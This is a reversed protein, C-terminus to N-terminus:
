LRASIGVFMYRGLADYMGGYFDGNAVQGGTSATLPPDKDFANNVGARLTLHRTIDKSIAFDFYSRSGLKLDYPQYAGTLFTASSSKDNKTSGIYRWTGSLMLGGQSTWDVLMRHRWHPIPLGCTVGFYGDCRYAPTGPLIQVEYKTTRTGSFNIGLRGLERGGFLDGLKQSATLSVDVGSTKLYGANINTTVVFGNTVLSGTTPNREILNCFEGTAICQNLEITAPVTSILKKVDINFYDATLTVGRLFPPVIQTGFSITNSTEPKLNPNGGILAGSKQGAAPAINGYQAATVGSAACQAFSAAPKTGECPDTLNATTGQQPGFLEVLNPARVARQFSGRFRIASIPAWEGGFKYAVTDGAESYHSYRIGANTTLSHIFPKDDVLPATLEGFVEKVNYSGSIPFEGGSNGAVDKSSYHSDPTLRISDDRYEAGVAVGIRHNAFPSGFPLQGTISGSAVKEETYGTRYFVGEVSNLAAPTIGGLQFINIPVCGANGSKCVVQGSSNTVAQLSDAFSALSIDGTLRSNYDTRGYQGYVDYHWDSGIDGKAGLVGQYSTHTTYDHRSGGQVNRLSVAVTANQAPTLGASTCFLNAEQGSLYPNNCNIKEAVTFVATPSIRIDSEDRMFMFQGYLQLAPSVEYHAFVDANWRKDPSQLDYTNGNNFGDSTRYTRLTNGTTSDITYSGRSAGTTPNLPQFQAPYTASSLSCSYGTAGASLGCTSFDRDATGVGDIHRYGVFATINGRGDAFNKGATISIDQQGGDLENGTPFPQNAAAAVSRIANGNTHSFLGGTSDVQVGDFNKKLIFNVVGALADSGYVASAGGTVVDIREVLAAPVNNIDPAQAAVRDPDGQMLRRGDVLVLTRQNGLNRLNITATGSAGVTGGRNGAGQDAYAQPLTNILDEIRTAGRQQLEDGSITSVPSISTADPSQIRSGTVIIAPAQTDSSPDSAAQAFVPAIWLQATAIALVSAAVRGIGACSTTAPSM